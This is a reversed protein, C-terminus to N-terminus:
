DFEGLTLLTITNHSSQDASKSGFTDLRRHHWPTRERTHTAARQGNDSFHRSSKEKEEERGGREKM